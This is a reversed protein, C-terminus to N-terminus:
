LVPEAKLRKVPWATQSPRSTTTRAAGEAIERVPQKAAMM